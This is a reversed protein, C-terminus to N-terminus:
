EPGMWLQKLSKLVLWAAELSKWVQENLVINFTKGSKDLSKKTQNLTFGQIEGQSTQSKDIDRPSKRVWKLSNLAQNFSKSVKWSKM